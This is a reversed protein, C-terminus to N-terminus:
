SKDEFDEEILLSLSRNMKVMEGYIGKLMLCVDTFGFALTRQMLVDKNQGIPMADLQDLNPTAKMGKVSPPMDM